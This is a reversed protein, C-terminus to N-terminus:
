GISIHCNRLEALTHSCLVFSQAPDDVEQCLDKSRQKNRQLKSPKRVLEKYCTHFSGTFLNLSFCVIYYMYILFNYIIYERYSSTFYNGASLLAGFVEVRLAKYGSFATPQFRIFRASAFEELSNKVVDNKGSNGYFVQLIIQFM